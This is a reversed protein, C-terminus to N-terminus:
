CLWRFDYASRQSHLKATVFRLMPVSSDRFLLLKRM